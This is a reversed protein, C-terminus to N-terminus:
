GGIVLVSRAQQKKFGVSLGLGVSTQVLQGM